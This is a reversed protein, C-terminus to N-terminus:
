LEEEHQPPSEGSGTTQGVIPGHVEIHNQFDVHVKAMCVLCLVSFRTRRKRVRCMICM